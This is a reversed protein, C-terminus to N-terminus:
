RDYVYAMGGKVQEAQLFRSGAFVKAVKRGYRDTDLIKLTVRDGNQAILSKLRDSKTGSRSTALYVLM